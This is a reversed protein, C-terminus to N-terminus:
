PVGCRPEASTGHVDFGLLKLFKKKRYFFLFLCTIYPSNTEFFLMKMLDDFEPNTGQSDRSPEKYTEPRISQDKM